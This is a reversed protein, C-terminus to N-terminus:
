EDPQELASISVCVLIHNLLENILYKCVLLRFFLHFFALSFTRVQTMIRDSGDREEDRFIIDPNHNEVLDKFRPDTRSIPGDPPESAGIAFESVNPDHQKHVFPTFKNRRSKTRSPRIQSTCQESYETFIILVITVSHIYRRLQVTFM